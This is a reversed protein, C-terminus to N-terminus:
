RDPDFFRTFGKEELGRRLKRDGTWLVGNLALAVAVVPADDLDSQRCLDLATAWHEASIWDEKYMEVRRLIAHYVSEFERPTVKGNARLLKEKHRFLEVIVTECFFFRHDPGFLIERFRSNQSILASFVINTDVIIPPDDAAV